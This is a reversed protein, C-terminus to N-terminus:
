QGAVRMQRLGRWVPPSLLLALTLWIIQLPILQISGSSNLEFTADFFDPEIKISADQLTALMGAVPGVVAWLQGTDAPDGLGVRVLLNLNKKHIARWLDSSFRLVRRRFAKQRVISFVNQEKRSSRQAGSSKRGPKEVESFAGKSRLLPIQVRVLGFAWHLKINEQFAQQWSVQFTLTVPIAFLVLLLLFIGVATLM